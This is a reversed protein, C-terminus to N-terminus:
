EVDAGAKLGTRRPRTTSQQRISAPSPHPLAIFRLLWQSLIGTSRRLDRPQRYLLWTIIMQNLSGVLINAVMYVDDQRPWEGAETGERLLSVVIRAYDDIVVRVQRNQIHVSPWIELYLVRAWDPNRFAFDATLWLFHHLREKVTSLDRSQDRYEAYFESQRTIPIAYALEEKSRYYDYISSPMISAEAAIDSVRAAAIGDRAFIKIAANLTQAVRQRSRDQKPGPMSSFERSAAAEILEKSTRQPNIERAM